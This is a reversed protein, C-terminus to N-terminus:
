PKLPDTSKVVVVGKKVYEALSAKALTAFDITPHVVPSTCDIMFHIKAILDPQTGLYDVEQRMTEDVCHSWAEGAKMIEDHSAIMDLMTVNLQTSPDKPDEMEAKWIGYHETRPDTGKTIFVPKTSRAASHWAIAEALAPVLKQGDTGVLCHYPWIVLNKKANQELFAVYRISWVPDVVPRWVGAKIDALTIVTFPQPNKGNTDIWWEPHFIMRKIHTDLSAVIKTIKGANRYIFEIVREVDKLAGPVPLAAGPQDMFDNQEDVLVLVRKFTDTDAPALGARKGLETYKKIDPEYVTGLVAPNLLSTAM